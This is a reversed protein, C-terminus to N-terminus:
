RRLMIQQTRTAIAGAVFPGRVTARLTLALRGRRALARRAIWAV